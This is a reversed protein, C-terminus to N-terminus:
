NKLECGVAMLYNCNMANILSCNSYAKVHLPKILVIASLDVFSAWGDPTIVRLVVGIVYNDVCQM